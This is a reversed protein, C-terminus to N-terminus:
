IKLKSRDSNMGVYTPQKGSECDKIYRGMRNRLDLVKREAKRIFFSKPLLFEPLIGAYGLGDVVVLRAVDTASSKQVMINHILLSRSPLGMTVWFECFQEFAVQFSETVGEYWIYQKINKSVEGDHDCVLESVLGKGLDTDEFGYCHTIHQFASDGYKKKFRSLVRYEELNDDFSSLLRLNKPFGKKRRLDRLTFDPRRVKVCLNKKKPHIYCLRNGGWAFPELERLQLTM